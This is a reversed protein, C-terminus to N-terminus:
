FVMGARPLKCHLPAVLYMLFIIQTIANIINNWLQSVSPHKPPCLDIGVQLNLLFKRPFILSPYVPTLWTLYMHTPSPATLHFFPCELNPLFTHKLKSMGLKFQKNPFWTSVHITLHYSLSSTRLQSIPISVMLSSSVVRLPQTLHFFLPGSINVPM